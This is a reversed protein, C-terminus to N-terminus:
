KKRVYYRKKGRSLTRKAFVSSEIHKMPLPNVVIAGNRAVHMYMKHKSKGHPNISLGNKKLAEIIETDDNLKTNFQIKM